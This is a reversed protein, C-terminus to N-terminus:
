QTSGRSQKRALLRERLGVLNFRREAETRIVEAEQERKGLYDEVDRRHQLYYALVSYIDALSLTPFSGAIEEPTSGHKFVAIVSDLTVRTGGVRAVGYQDLQLPVPQPATSLSM